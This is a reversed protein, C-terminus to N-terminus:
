SEEVHRVICRSLLLRGANMYVVFFVIGAIFEAVNFKTMPIGFLAGRQETLPIALLSAPTLLACLLLEKQAQMKLERASELWGSRDAWFLLLDKLALVTM